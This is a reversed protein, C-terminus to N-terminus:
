IVENTCQAHYMSTYSALGKIFAAEYAMGCWQLKSYVVTKTFAMKREALEALLPEIIDLFSEEATHKSGTSPNRRKVSMYINPRDVTTCVLQWNTMLLSSTIKRQIQKSATATMALMKAGPNFSNLKYLEAYDSRFNAEGWQVVVHAEDIVIYIKLNRWSESKYVKCMESALLQEPHGLVFWIDGKVIRDVDDSVDGAKMRQLVDNSLAVCDKGYRTQQESLISNLPLVVLVLPRCGSEMFTECYPILEFIISKGFGTPLVAMVDNRLIKSLCEYQEAKLSVYNTNRKENISALGFAVAEDFKSCM